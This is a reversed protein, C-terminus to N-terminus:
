KANLHARKLLELAQATSRALIYIGGRSTIMHEFAIQEPSQKAQGTKIEIHARLGVGDHRTLIADIDSEGPNNIKMPTATKVKGFDDFRVRYFTGVVRKWARVYPLKNAELVVENVLTTHAASQNM